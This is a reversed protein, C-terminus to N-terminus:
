AVKFFIGSQNILQFISKCKKTLFATQFSVAPGATAADMHTKKYNAALEPTIFSPHIFAHISLLEKIRTQLRFCHYRYVLRVRVRVTVRISV